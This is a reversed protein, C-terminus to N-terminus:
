GESHSEAVLLGSKARRRWKRGIFGAGAIALMAFTGPEPVAASTITVTGFNSSQFSAPDIASLTGLDDNHFETFGNNVLGITFTNGVADLPTSSTHQVELRALLQQTSTLSIAPLANLFDGGILTLFPSGTTAFFNGTPLNGFVYGIVGPVDIETSLQTSRFLLDGDTADGSIEFECGALFLDETSTSRIMVDVYGIGNTAIFANQVQVIIAASLPVVSSLVIVSTLLLRFKVTRMLNIKM